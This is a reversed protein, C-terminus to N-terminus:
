DPAPGSRALAARCREVGREAKEVEESETGQLLGIARMDRWRSASSRYLDLAATWRTRREAATAGAALTAYAEGLQQYTQAFFPQLLADRPDLRTREMWRLAEAGHATAGPSGRKALAGALKTHADILSARKWLNASDARVDATRLELSARYHGLAESWRGLRAKMDGVRVWGYALDGRYLENKPDERALDAVIQVQRQYSELAERLRGLHDLIEGENYYSASLTRRHDANLPFDAALEARRRITMRNYALASDYQGLTIYATAIHDTAVGAARRVDANGPWRALLRDAIELQRAHLDLAGRPDGSNQLLQGTTDLARVLEGQLELDDPAAHALPELLPVARRSEELAPQVEGLEWRLLAQRILTSAYPRRTEARTSDSALLAEYLRRAKAYSDLAGATNGLNAFQTGGQVDGLRLYAAALERQLSPDSGADRALADLYALGDTVMRERIPTAGALNKIADHYDYMVARALRRLDDFRREARGQAERARGAQWSTAVVGAVLSLVVLSGAVVAVRNRRVFKHARYVLTDPRALVPLGVLHRRLDESFQEVSAYRRLPDKQLAKLAIVDLDGRLRRRLREPTEERQAAIQKGAPEAAAPGGRAEPPREIATSPRRPEVTAIVRAAEAVSRAEFRYPPRGCLLEYLVVGLSYVDSLATVRSGHIQEPSAYEPTMMLLGTVTRTEDQSDGEHLIRAIGFDLLKATGDETVLVNSPKLDRHVVLRQHAFAVAACAQRFLDIRRTVSLRRADCYRDIPEGEVHEMVFYPLGDETSGGDYFRAINPHELQALIQREIRFRRLVPESDMGRRIVKLAVQRDFQRDAREALYVRGMGGHAIERLVRWAGIRAGELREPGPPERAAGGSTPRPEALFDGASEHAAILREVQARLADDGACAEALFVARQGEPLEVARDFLETVRQWPSDTM